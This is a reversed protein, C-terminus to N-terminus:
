FARPLEAGQGEKRRKEGLCKNGPLIYLFFTSREPSGKGEEEKREEGGAETWRLNWGLGMEEVDCTGSCVPSKRCGPSWTGTELVGVEWLLDSPMVSTSTPM